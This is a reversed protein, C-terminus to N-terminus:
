FISGDMLSYIAFTRDTTVTFSVGGKARELGNIKMSIPFCTNAKELLKKEPVSFLMLQRGTAAVLLSEDLFLVASIPGAYWSELQQSASAEQNNHLAEVM